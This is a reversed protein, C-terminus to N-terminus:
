AKAVYKHFKFFLRKECLKTFGHNLDVKAFSEFFLASFVQWTFGLVKCWSAHAAPESIVIMCLPPLLFHSFLVMHPSFPLFCGAHNIACATWNSFCCASHSKSSPFIMIPRELTTSGSGSQILIWHSTHIRIRIRFGSGHALFIFFFIV